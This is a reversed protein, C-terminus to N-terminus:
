PAPAVMAPRSRNMMEFAQRQMDLDSRLHRELVAQQETSLITRAEQAIRANRAEVQELSRQRMEMLQEPSFSPPGTIATTPSASARVSGVAQTPRAEISARGYAAIMQQRQDKTLALDADVLSMQFNRVMSRAPMAAQYDRWRSVTDAGFEAALSQELEAVSNGGNTFPSGTSAVAAWRETLRLGGDALVTLFREVGAEDLGLAEPLDTMQRRMGAVQQQIMAARAKPDAMRELFQRQADAASIPGTTGSMWGVPPTAPRPPASERPQVATAVAAAKPAAAVTATVVPPAEPPPPVRALALRSVAREAQLANWLYFSTGTSALTTLVLAAFTLRAM